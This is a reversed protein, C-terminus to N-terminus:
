CSRMGGDFRSGRVWAVRPMATARATAGRPAERGEMARAPNAAPVSGSM